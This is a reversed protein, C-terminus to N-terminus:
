IVYTFRTVPLIWTGGSPFNLLGSRDIACSSLPNDVEFSCMRVNDIGGTTERMFIICRRRITPTLGSIDGVFSVPLQPVATPVPITYESLTQINVLTQGGVIYRSVVVPVSTTNINLVINTESFEGPKDLKLYHQFSM